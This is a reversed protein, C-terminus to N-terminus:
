SDSEDVGSLLDRLAALRPDPQSLDCGCEAHNLNCGCKPCLGKCEQRCLFRTPMELLIDERALEDLDLCYDPVVVLEDSTDDDFSEESSKHPNKVEKAVLIHEFDLEYTETAEDLCRDCERTYGVSAHYRLMVIRSQNEVRGSLRILERFPYADYLEEERLDLEAEVPMVHGELQFVQKLDLQM